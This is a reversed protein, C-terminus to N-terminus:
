GFFLRFFDNVLNRMQPFEIYLWVTLIIFLIM